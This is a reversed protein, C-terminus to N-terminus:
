MKQYRVIDEESLRLFRVAINYLIDRKQSESLFDASEISEIAIEMADPWVMQDSGFMVRNGFGSEVIQNLFRHFGPRSIVFSIVGIDVYIRPHTWMLTLLDDIM